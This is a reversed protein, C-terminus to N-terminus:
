EDKGKKFSKSASPKEPEIVEISDEIQRRDWYSSPNVERGEVPLFDGLIIDRVKLDNKPKVFM